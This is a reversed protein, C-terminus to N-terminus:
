FCMITLFVYNDFPSQQARVLYAEENRWAMLSVDINQRSGKLM